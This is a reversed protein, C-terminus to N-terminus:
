LKSHIGAEGMARLCSKFGEVQEERGPAGLIIKDM